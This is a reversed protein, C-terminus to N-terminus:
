AWTTLVGVPTAVPDCPEERDCVGVEGTPSYLTVKDLAWDTVDVNAGGNSNFYTIARRFFQTTEGTAPDTDCLVSWTVDPSITDSSPIVVVGSSGSGTGSDGCCCPGGAVTGDSTDVVTGDPRTFRVKYIVPGGNEDLRIEYFATLTESYAGNNYCVQTAVTDVCKNM